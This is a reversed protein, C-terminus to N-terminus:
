APTRPRAWRNVRDPPNDWLQSAVTWAGRIKTYSLAGALAAAAGTAGFNSALFWTTITVIFLAELNFRFLAREQGSMALFVFPHGFISFVAELSVLVLLPTFSILYQAGLIYEILDRGLFVFLIASLANMAFLALAIEKYLRQLENVDGLSDAKAITPAFVINCITSPLSLVASITLAARFSGLDVAHDQMALIILGVSAIVVRALEAASLFGGSLITPLLARFKFPARRNIRNRYVAYAFLLGVAAAVTYGIIPDVVSAGKPGFYVYVGFAWAATVVPRITLESIQGLLLKGYGRLCASLFNSIVVLGSSISCIAFIAFFGLDAQAFFVGAVAAGMLSLCIGIITYSRLLLDVQEARAAAAAERTLVQWGGFDAITSVITIIALLLGYVGFNKIDLSRAMLAGGILTALVNLLRLLATGLFNKSLLRLRILKLVMVIQPM